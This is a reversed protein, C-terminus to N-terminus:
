IGVALGIPQPSRHLDARQELDDWAGNDAFGLEVEAHLIDRVRRYLATDFTGQFLM